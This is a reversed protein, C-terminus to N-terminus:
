SEFSKLEFLDSSSDSEHDGEWKREEAERRCLLGVDGEKERLVWKRAGFGIGSFSGASSSAATTVAAAIIETDSIRRRRRRRRSSRADEVEEEEKKKKKKKSPSQHLLSSLFGALRGAPSIPLWFCKIIEEKAPVVEAALAAGAPLDSSKITYDNMYNSPIRTSSFSLDVAGADISGSFYRTADFVDLEESYRRRRCSSHM